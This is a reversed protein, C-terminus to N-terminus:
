PLETFRFPTRGSIEQVWPEAPRLEALIEEAMEINAPKQSGPSDKESQLIGIAVKLSLRDLDDVAAEGEEGQDQSRCVHSWSTQRPRVCAM